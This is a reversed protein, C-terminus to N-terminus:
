VAEYYTSGILFCQITDIQPLYAWTLIAAEDCFALTSQNKPM